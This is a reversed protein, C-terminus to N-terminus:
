LDNYKWDAYSKVIHGRLTPKCKKIGDQGWHDLMFLSLKVKNKTRVFKGCTWCSEFIYMPIPKDFNVSNDKM